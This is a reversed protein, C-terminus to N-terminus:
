LHHARMKFLWCGLSCIPALHAEQRFVHEKDLATIWSREQTYDRSAKWRDGTGGRSDCGKDLAM